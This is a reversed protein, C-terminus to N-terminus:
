FGFPQRKVEYKAEIDALTRQLKKIDAGLKSQVAERSEKERDCEKTRDDLQQILEANTSQLESKERNLGAIKEATDRELQTAKQQLDSELKQKAKNYQDELDTKKKEYKTKEQVGANALKQLASLEAKHKKELESIESHHKARDKEIHEWIDNKAAKLERIKEEREQDRGYREGVISVIEGYKGFTKRLADITDDIVTLGDQLKQTNDRIQDHFSGFSIPDLDIREPHTTQTGNMAGGSSGGASENLSGSNVAPQSM